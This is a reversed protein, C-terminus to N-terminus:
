KVVTMKRTYLGGPTEMHVFYIGSSLDKNNLNVSYRGAKKNENLLGKVMRGTVDHLSIKVNGEKEVAYSLTAIG